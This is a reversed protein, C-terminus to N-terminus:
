EEMVVKLWSGICKSGSGEVEIRLYTNGGHSVDEEGDSIGHRLAIDM